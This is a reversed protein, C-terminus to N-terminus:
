SDEFIAYSSAAKEKAVYMAKDSQRILDTATGCFELDAITVGISVGAAVLNHRSIEFPENFLSVIKSAVVEADHPSVLEALLIAFEDGGFRATTDRASVSRKIRSAAEILLADGADHGYTDNVRKLGNLDLFLVSLLDGHRRQKALSLQLKNEFFARNCLSTLPDYNAQMFLKNETSKRLIAYSISHRVKKDDLDDKILYDQAGRRISELAATESKDGTMYVVPLNPAFFQIRELGEFNRADPLSRDLLAIDFQVKQIQDLADSLSNAVHFSCLEPIASKLARVLLVADGPNDEILLINLSRLRDDQHYVDAENVHYQIETLRKWYLGVWHGYFKTYEM